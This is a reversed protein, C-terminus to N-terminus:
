PAAFMHPGPPPIPHGYYSVIPGAIADEDMERVLRIAHQVGTLADYTEVLPTAGPFVRVFALLAEPEDHAQM